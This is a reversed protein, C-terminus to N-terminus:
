WDLPRKSGGPRLYPDDLDLTRGNSMAEKVRDVLRETDFPSFRIDRLLYEKFKEKAEVQNFNSAERSEREMAGLTQALSKPDTGFMV